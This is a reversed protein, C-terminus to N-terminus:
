IGLHRGIGPASDDMFEVLSATPWKQDGGLAIVNEILGVLLLTLRVIRIRSVIFLLFLSYCFLNKLNFFYKFNGRKIL